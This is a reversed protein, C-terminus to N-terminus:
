PGPVADCGLVFCGFLLWVAVLCCGCLGTPTCKKAAAAVAVRDLRQADFPFVSPAGELAIHQDQAASALAKTGDDVSMAQLTDELSDEQAMGMMTDDGDGEGDADANATGTGDGRGGKSGPQQLQKGTNRARRGHPSPVAEERRLAAGAGRRQQRTSARADVADSVDGEDGQDGGEVVSEEEGEGDGGDDEGGDGNDNDNDNDHQLLLEQARKLAQEARTRKKPEEQQQQEQQQQQEEEEEQQQEQQQEQEQEQEQQEQEQEQQQQM